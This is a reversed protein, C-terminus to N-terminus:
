ASSGWRSVNPASTRGYLRLEDRLLYPVPLRRGALGEVYLTLSAVLQEQASRTLEGRGKSRAARLGARAEKVDHLLGSLPRGPAPSGRGQGVAADVVERSRLAFSAWVSKMNTGRTVGWDRSYCRVINLGRGATATAQMEKRIPGSSSEDTVTLRVSDTLGELKVTFPTRAHQAANSALESAVLRVDEVLYALEHEVLLDQIFGRTVALSAPLPPLRVRGSWSTTTPVSM